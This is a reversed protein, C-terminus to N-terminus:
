LWGRQELVKDEVFAKLCNYTVNELTVGFLRNMKKNSADLSRYYYGGSSSCWVRRFNSIIEIKINAKAKEIGSFTRANFEQYADQIVIRVTIPKAGQFNRHILSKIHKKHQQTLEPHHQFQKNPHPYGPLTMEKGSVSDRIDIINIKQAKLNFNLPKQSHNSIKNIRAMGCGACIFLLLLFHYKGLHGM